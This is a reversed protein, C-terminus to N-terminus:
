RRLVRKANEAANLGALAADRWEPKSFAVVAGYHLVNDDLFLDVGFVPYRSKMQKRLEDNSEPSSARWERKM